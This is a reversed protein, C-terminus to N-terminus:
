EDKFFELRKINCQKFKYLTPLENPHESTDFKSEVDLRIDAYLDDTKISYVFSYTDMYNLKLADKFKPKMYAYHFDYMKWKSIELVVCGLYTLKEYVNIIRKM